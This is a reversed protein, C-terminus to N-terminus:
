KKDFDELASTHAFKGLNEEIEEPGILDRRKRMRERELMAKETKHTVQQRADQRLSTSLYNVVSNGAVPDM